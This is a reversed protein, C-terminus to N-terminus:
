YHSYRLEILLVSNSNDFVHVLARIPSSARVVMFLSLITTYSSSILVKILNSELIISVVTVTISWYSM